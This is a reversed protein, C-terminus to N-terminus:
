IGNKKGFLDNFFNSVSEKTTKSKGGERWSEDKKSFRNKSEESVIEGATKEPLRQFDQTDFISFSNKPSVYNSGSFVGTSSVESTKGQITQQIKEVMDNIRNKEAVRKNTDINEKLEKTKEKSSVNNSLLVSKDPNFITNSTEMKIQKSPGSEDRIIGTAASSINKSSMRGNDKNNLKKSKQEEAINLVFDPAVDKDTKVQNESSKELFSIKGQDKMRQLM